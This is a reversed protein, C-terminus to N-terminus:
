FQWFAVDGRVFRCFHAFILQKVLVKIKLSLKFTYLESRRIFRPYGSPCKVSFKWIWTLFHCDLTARCRLNPRLCLVGFFALLSLFHGFHGTKEAKILKFLSFFNFNQRFNTKSRKPVFFIIFFYFIKKPQFDIIKRFKKEFLRFYRKLPGSIWQSPSGM